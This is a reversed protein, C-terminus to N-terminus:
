YRLRDLPPKYRPKRPTSEIAFSAQGAASADLQFPQAPAATRQQPHWARLEYTGAPLERLRAHGTADTRAFYPTPVVVVYGVMWDHINCGLTVVGSKDFVVESPSKGTYLKIEFPKAPSFSYVHHLIPDRNPFTVTTGVQIVTVYPVFEREVQEIAARAGRAESGGSAPMAYVAADGLPGGAGDRVQVEISAARTANAALALGLALALRSM